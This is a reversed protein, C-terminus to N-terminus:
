FPIDSDDDIDQLVPRQRTKKETRTNERGGESDSEQVRKGGCFDIEQVIVDTAIREAGQKDQYKRFQVEGVVGLKDGKHVYREITEALGRWATCPFFDTEHNGEANARARRVALSFRCVAIGSSTESLEPDKTLNGILIIRNM